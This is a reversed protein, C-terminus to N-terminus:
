RLDEKMKPFLHFNSPAFYASYPSHPLITANFKAIAKMTTQSIHSTTSDHQLLINKKHKWVGWLWQKLTKLTAIYCESNITTGPELIDMYIVGETDWFVAAM